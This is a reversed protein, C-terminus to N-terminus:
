CCLKIVRNIIRLPLFILGIPRCLLSYFFEAQTINITRRVGLKDPSAVSLNHSVEVEAVLINNVFRTSVYHDLYDLWFVGPISVDMVISLPFFSGSLIASNPNSLTPRVSGIKSINCPSCLTDNQDYVKPVLVCTTAKQDIKEIFSLIFDARTDDDIFLVGSWNINKNTKIINQTFIFTGRTGTNAGDWQYCVRDGLHEKLFTLDAQKKSNDYILLEVYYGLKELSLAIEPFDRVLFIDCPNRNFLTLSILIKM